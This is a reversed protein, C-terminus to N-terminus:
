QGGFAEMDTLDSQSRVERGSEMVIRVINQRRFYAVTPANVVDRRHWDM